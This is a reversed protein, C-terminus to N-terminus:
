KAVEQQTTTINYEERIKAWYLPYLDEMFGEWYRRWAISQHPSQKGLSHHELCLCLINEKDNKGGHSKFLVHHHNINRSWCGPFQCTREDRNDVEKYAEIQTTQEKGKRYKQQRGTTKPLTLSDWMNVERREKKAKSKRNIHAIKSRKLETRKLAIPCVGKRKNNFAINNKNNSNLTFIM